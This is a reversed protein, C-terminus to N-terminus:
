QKLPYDTIKDKIDMIIFQDSTEKSIKLIIVFDFSGGMCSFFSIDSVRKSSEM